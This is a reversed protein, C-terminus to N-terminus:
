KGAPTAPVSPTVPTAPPRPALLRSSYTFKIEGTDSAGLKVKQAAPVAGGGPYWLRVEYDGAPLADLSVRGKDDSKGFYPTDVVLVYAIMTDHINCGLVVEGPKDFLVPKSPVGSYLKIEFTKAPSFSYVHHRIPDRNPLNVLAGTQVVSVLPVFEKNIQEISIERPTKSPPAGSVMTAYVGANSVAEGAATSVQVAIKAAHGTIPAALM